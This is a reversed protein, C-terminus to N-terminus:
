TCTLRQKPFIIGDTIQFENAIKVLEGLTIGLEKELFNSIDPHKSKINFLLNSLPAGNPRNHLAIYLKASVTGYAEFLERWSNEYYADFTAVLNTLSLPEDPLRIRDSLKVLVQAMEPLLKKLDEPNDICVGARDPPQQLFELSDNDPNQLRQAVWAIDAKNTELLLQWATESLCLRAGPMDSLLRTVRTIVMHGVWDSSRWKGYRRHTYLLATAAASFSRNSGRKRNIPNLGLINCFDDSIDQNLLRDRSYPRLIVNETGLEDIWDELIAQYNPWCVDWDITQDRAYWMKTLQQLRIPVFEAPCRIYCIAQISSFHPRLVTLLIKPDVALSRQKKYVSNTLAEASFILNKQTDQLQSELRDEFLIKQSKIFDANDGRSVYLPHSEPIDSFLNVFALGHNPNGPEIEAYVTSGDDYGSLSGQLSTTGTKPMGIHLFCTREIQAM